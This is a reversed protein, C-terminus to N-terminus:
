APSAYIYVFIAGNEPGVQITHSISGFKNTITCKYMGDDEKRNDQSPPM